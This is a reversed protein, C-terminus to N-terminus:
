LTDAPEARPSSLVFGGTARSRREVARWWAAAGAACGSDRVFGSPSNRCGRLRRSDVSGYHFLLLVSAGIVAGRLLVAAGDYDTMLASVFFPSDIVLALLYLPYIRAFRAAWFSGRTGTLAGRDGTCSCTLV